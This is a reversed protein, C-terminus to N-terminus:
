ERLETAISNRYGPHFEGTVPAGGVVVFELDNKM